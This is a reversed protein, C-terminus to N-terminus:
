NTISQNNTKFQESYINPKTVGFFFGNGLQNCDKAGNKLIALNLYLILCRQNKM